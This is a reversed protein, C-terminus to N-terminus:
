NCETYGINTEKEKNTEKNRNWKKAKWEDGASERGLLIRAM